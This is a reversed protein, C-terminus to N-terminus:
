STREERRKEINGFESYKRRFFVTKGAEPNEVKVVLKMWSSQEAPVFGATNPVYDTGGAQAIKSRGVFYQIHGHWQKKHHQTGM